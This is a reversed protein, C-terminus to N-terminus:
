GVGATSLGDITFLELRSILRELAKSEYAVPPFKGWVPSPWACDDRYRVVHHLHLQPVLNGIAAINLKDGQFVQMIRTSLVCSELWMQRQDASELQYIETIEDRDPVLIFWPYSADNM